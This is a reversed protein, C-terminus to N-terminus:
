MSNITVTATAQDMGDSNMARCSYTGRQAPQISDIIYIPSNTGTILAGEFYWTIVPQPAGTAVCTLNVLSGLPIDQNMPPTVIVPPSNDQVTCFLYLM